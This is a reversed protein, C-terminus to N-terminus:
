FDVQASVKLFRAQIVSTPTLWASGFTQNVSLVTAANFANFVEVGATFRTRQHRFLKAVRFDVQNIRDNYM